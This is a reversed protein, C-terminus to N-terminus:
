RERDRLARLDGRLRELDLDGALLRDRDSPLLFLLGALLCLVFDREGGGALLLDLVGLFFLFRELDLDFDLSTCDFALEGARDVEGEGTLPLFSATGSFPFSLSPLVFASM